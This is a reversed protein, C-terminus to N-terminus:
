VTSCNHGHDYMDLEGISVRITLIGILHSNWIGALFSPSSPTIASHIEKLLKNFCNFNPFSVQSSTQRCSCSNESKFMVVDTELQTITPILIMQKPILAQLPKPDSQM